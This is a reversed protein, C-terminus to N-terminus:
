NPRSEDDDVFRTSALKLARGLTDPHKNLWRLLLSIMPAILISPLAFARAAQRTIDLSRENAARRKREYASLFDTNGSLLENALAVADAVSMNAGQGGAPSVPHIADGILAAGACGYKSAHGWPRRVRVLGDPFSIHGFAKEILLDSKKFEQWAKAASAIDDFLRPDAPVLGAGKGGPLPVAGLLSFKATRRNKNVFVRVRNEELVAPWEFGFCLFDVPFM